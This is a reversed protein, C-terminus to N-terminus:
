DKPTQNALGQAKSKLENRLEQIRGNLYSEIIYFTEMHPLAPGFFDEESDIKAKVHKVEEELARLQLWDASSMNM